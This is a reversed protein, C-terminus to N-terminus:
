EEGWAAPFAVADAPVTTWGDPHEAWTIVELDTGPIVGVRGEVEFRRERIARDILRQQAPTYSEDEVVQVSTGAPLTVFGRSPLHYTLDRRITAEIM